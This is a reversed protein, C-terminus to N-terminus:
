VSCLGCWTIANHMAGGHGMARTHTVYTQRYSQKHKIRPTVIAFQIILWMIGQHVFQTQRFQKYPGLQIPFLLFLLLLLLLLLLHILKNKCFQHIQVNVNMEYMPECWQTVSVVHAGLSQTIWSKPSIWNSTSQNVIFHLLRAVPSINHRTSFSPQKKEVSWFFLM